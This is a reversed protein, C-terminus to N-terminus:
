RLRGLRIVANGIELQRVSTVSCPNSLLHACDAQTLEQSCAAGEAPLEPPPPLDPKLQPPELSAEGCKIELLEEVRWDKADPNM